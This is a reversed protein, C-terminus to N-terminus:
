QCQGGLDAIQNVDSGDGNILAKRFLFANRVKNALNFVGVTEAAAIKNHVGGEGSVSCCQLVAQATNEPLHCVRM